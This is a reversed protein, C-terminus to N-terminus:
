SILSRSHFSNTGFFSAYDMSLETKYTRDCDEGGCKIEFPPVKWTSTVKQVADSVQKFFDADNNIIFDEIAKIDTEQEENNTIGAIHRLIMTLNLKSLDDFVRQRTKQDTEEESQGIQVLQKQLVYQQKSFETYQRYTLPKIVFTLDKLKVQEQYSLGTFNELLKNLSVESSNETKCESCTSTIPMSDGYTALRIAVLLHDIDFGVLSWPDKIVPICSKIINATAEGSFLADPTKLMIEDMTNMGFVPIETYQQDQVIDANYYLGKSPFDVYIKPQRKYKELFSSM